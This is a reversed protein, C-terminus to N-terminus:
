GAWEVIVLSVDDAFSGTGAWETLDNVAEVAAQAAPLSRRATLSRIIRDVGFQEDGAANTQELVGDSFLCVRDSPQLQISSEEYEVADFM